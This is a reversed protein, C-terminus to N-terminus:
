AVVNRPRMGRIHVLPRDFIDGVLDGTIEGLANRVGTYVGPDDPLDAGAASNAGIFFLRQPRGCSRLSAGARRDIDM